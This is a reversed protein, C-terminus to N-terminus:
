SDKRRSPRGVDHRRTSESAERGGDDASDDPAAILGLSRLAERVTSRQRRSLRAMQTVNGRCRRYLDVYYQRDFERKAIDYPGQEPTFEKDFHIAPLARTLSLVKGRVGVVAIEVLNRLERINCPWRRVKVMELSADDIKMDPRGLDELISQLLVEIDDMRNRLPPIEVGVKGIRFYLDERFRGANVAHKLDAHTAFLARVNVKRPRDSGVPRLEKYELVRLLKMQLTPSMEAVEDFFLTGGHAEVFLGKREGDAGTFAGRVHGFLEAELLADTVNGCNIVVFPRHRRASADHIARAVREKGTGTEGHILVSLSTPAYRRLVGMLELMEPTTGFLGGFRPQRDLAVEHPPDPIFRLAKGGCRFECPGTLHWETFRGDNFFSGNRSKQDVVRVGQPTAQVELHVASVTTDDLVLHCRRSRGILLRDTGVQLRGDEDVVEIRGGHVSVFGSSETLPRTLDSPDRPTDMANGGKM